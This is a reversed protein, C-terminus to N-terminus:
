ICTYIYIYMCLSPHIGPHLLSDYKEVNWIDLGSRGAGVDSGLEEAACRKAPFFDVLQHHSIHTYWDYFTPIGIDNAGDLRFVM